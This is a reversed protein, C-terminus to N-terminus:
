WEKDNKDYFKVFVERGIYPMSAELPQSGLVVSNGITEINGYHFLQRLRDEIALLRSGNACEDLEENTVLYIKVTPELFYKNKIRQRTNYYNINGFEIGIYVKMDESNKVPIKKYEFINEERIKIKQKQKLDPQELIDINNDTYYVFKLLTQDSMIRNVFERRYENLIGSASWQVSM